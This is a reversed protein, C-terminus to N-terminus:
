KIGLKSIIELAAQYGESAAPGIDEVVQTVLAPSAGVNLAGRIHSHLQVPMNDMMLAAVTCLERTVSGLGPRSLVKGYGELIMWRFIDPAMEEIRNKLLTYNEGYVQRYLDMGNAYWSQIEREEPKLNLIKRTPQSDNKFLIDAAILMRPFGLFLYSQLVVEYLQDPEAKHIKATELSNKIIKSDATTLSASFLSLGRTLRNEDPNFQELRLQLVESKGRSNM